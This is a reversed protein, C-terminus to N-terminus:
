LVRKEAAAVKLQEIVDSVKTLGRDDGTRLRVSVAEARQEKDGVVLMYPIKQLQADRIKAQMRESREDVEVRCAAARLQAAVTRAYDLHRDTIPIVLAQVPALWVPFAGGYHEILLALFREISGYLARHVMYPRLLQGDPGVYGLEFRRPLNFDFQITSAQWRRGLADVIKIDIKPGYFVAEGEMRQYHLNRADLAAALTAEALDWDDDSGAYKEPTSPDRVSLEMEPQQFGYDALVSLCFQLAQEIETAMQDPRCFLHADDQTFGRVRLLGQLTRSREYRYVTGLEAFRLPLDRYSRVRSKVILMHFPCNMPKLYYQEDEIDIAAYMGDQYWQLHGSTEWLAARGIHPTGVFAYGGDRHRQRWYDEMLTRLLAHRM